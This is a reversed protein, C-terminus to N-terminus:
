TKSIIQQVTNDHVIQAVSAFFLDPPLKWRRGRRRKKHIEKITVKRWAEPTFVNPEVIEDFIQRAM